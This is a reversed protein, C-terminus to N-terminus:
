CHKFLSLGFYFPCLVEVYIILELRGRYVPSRGWIDDIQATEFLVRLFQSNLKCGNQFASVFSSKKSDNYVRKRQIATM